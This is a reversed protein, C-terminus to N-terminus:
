SSFHMKANKLLHNANPATDLYRAIAKALQTEAGGKCNIESNSLHQADDWDAPRKSLWWKVAEAIILNDKKAM